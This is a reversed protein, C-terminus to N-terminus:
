SQAEQTVRAGQGIARRFASTAREIDGSRLIARTVAVGAAGAGMVEPVRDATIGGIAIVPVPAVAGVVGALQAIGRPADDPHSRTPYVHGFTLYDAGGHAAERAEEMSHVSVGIWSDPGVLQRAAVAPLSRQGLHVGDAGTALALDVRDNVIVIASTGATEQQIARVIRVLDRASARPYRVQVVDVGSRVVLRIMPLIDSDEIDPDTM